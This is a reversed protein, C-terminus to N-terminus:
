KTATNRKNHPGQWSRQWNPRVSDQTQSTLRKGLCNSVSFSWVFSHWKNKPMLSAATCTWNRKNSWQKNKINERARRLLPPHTPGNTTKHGRGAWIIRPIGGQAWLPLFPLWWFNQSTLVQKQDFSRKTKVHLQGFRQSWNTKCHTQLSHKAFFALLHWRSKQRAHVQGM